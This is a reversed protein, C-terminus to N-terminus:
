GMARRVREADARAYVLTSTISRHHLAEKVLLVDSTRAYLDLAFRHRLAHPSVHRTIGAKGLWMTFRRQAHRHSIRRGAYGTFLAGGSDDALFERLHETIADGLYVTAPRNGKATRIQIERRDLDVDNVDLAVASSLRIGTALMLHFLAHDRQAERGDAAALADLLRRAEDDSLARPPPPSCIARRVLRTPDERVVGAQLLYGFFGRL